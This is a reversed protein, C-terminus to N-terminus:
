LIVKLNYLSWHAKLENLYEASINQSGNLKKMAIKMPEPELKKWNGDNQMANYITDKIFEDIDDNGSTWGEIMCHPVCEKCWLKAHEPKYCNKHNIHSNRSM